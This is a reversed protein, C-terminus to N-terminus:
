GPIWGLYLGSFNFCYWFLQSTRARPPILIIKVWVLYNPKNIQKRRSLVGWKASLRKFQELCDIDCPGKGEVLPPVSNKFYFMSLRRIDNQMEFESSSLSISSSGIKFNSGNWSESTKISWLWWLSGSLYKESQIYNPVVWRSKLYRSHAQSNHQFNWGSVLSRPTIEDWFYAILFSLKSQYPPKGAPKKSIQFIDFKKNRGGAPWFPEFQNIKRNSLSLKPRIPLNSVRWM